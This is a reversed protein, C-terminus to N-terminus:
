TPHRFDEFKKSNVFFFKPLVESYKFPSFKKIYSKCVDPVFYQIEFFIFICFPGWKAGVHNKLTPYLARMVARAGVINAGSVFITYSKGFFNQPLKFNKFIKAQNKWMFNESIESFKWIKKWFFFSLDHPFGLCFFNKKEFFLALDHPFGLCFKKKRFKLIFDELKM